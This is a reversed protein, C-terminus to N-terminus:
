EGKKPPKAKVARNELEKQLFTRVTMETPMSSSM